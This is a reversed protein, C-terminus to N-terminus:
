AEEVLRSRVEMLAFGLLNKGNWFRPHDIDPWDLPWGISWISDGAIAQALVRDGTGMLYERLEPNQSFKAYNGDVVIQFRVDHWPKEMFDRVRRGLLKVKAPSLTHLIKRYINYDEFYLAKQAMMYHEATPYSLGNVSFPAFFWNSLCSSDVLNPYEQQHDDFFLYELAEGQKYLEVLESHSRIQAPKM